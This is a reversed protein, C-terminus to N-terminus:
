QVSLLEVQAHVHQNRVRSREDHEVAFTINPQTDTVVLGIGVDHRGVEGILYTM